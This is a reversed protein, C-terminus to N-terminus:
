FSVVSTTGYVCALLNASLDLLIYVYIYIYIYTHTHTHTYIYYLHLVKTDNEISEAECMVKLRGGSQKAKELDAQTVNRITAREVQSPLLQRGMLVTALAAIKVSADWGDLDSEPHAEAIGM